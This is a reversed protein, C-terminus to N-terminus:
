WWEEAIRRYNRKKGYYNNNIQKNLIYPKVGYKIYNKNIRTKSLIM